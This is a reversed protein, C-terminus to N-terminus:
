MGKIQLIEPPQTALMEGLGAYLMKAVELNPAEMTITGLVTPAGAMRPTSSEIPRTPDFTEAIPVHIASVTYRRHGNGYDDRRWCTTVVGPRPTLNGNKDM